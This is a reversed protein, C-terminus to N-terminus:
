LMKLTGGSIYGENMRHIIDNECGRNAEIQSGLNKFLGSGRVTWKRCESEEKAVLRM